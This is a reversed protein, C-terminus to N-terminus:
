TDMIWYEPLMFNHPHMTGVTRNFSDRSSRLHPANVTVEVDSTLATVIGQERMRHFSTKQFVRVCLVADPYRVTHCTDGTVRFVSLQVKGARESGISGMGSSIQHGSDFTLVRRFVVFM